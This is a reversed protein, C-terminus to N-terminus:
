SLSYQLQEGWCIGVKVIFGLISFSDSKKLVVSRRVSMSVFRALSITSLSLPHDPPTTWGYDFVFFGSTFVM